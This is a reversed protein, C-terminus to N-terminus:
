RASPLPVYDEDDSVDDGCVCCIQRWSQQYHATQAEHERQKKEVLQRTLHLQVNAENPSTADRLQQLRNARQQWAPDPVPTQDMRSLLMQFPHNKHKGTISEGVGGVADM